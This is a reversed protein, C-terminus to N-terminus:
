YYDYKGGAIDTKIDDLAEQIIVMLQKAAEHDDVEPVDWDTITMNAKFLLELGKRIEGKRSELEKKLTDM